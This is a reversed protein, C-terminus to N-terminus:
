EIMGLIEKYQNSEVGKTKKHVFALVLDKDIMVKGHKREYLALAAVKSANSAFLCLCKNRRRRAGLLVVRGDAFTTIKQPHSQGFHNVVTQWKKGDFKPVEPFFKKIIEAAKGMELFITGM